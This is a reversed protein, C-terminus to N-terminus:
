DKYCVWIGTYDEDDMHVSTVQVDFYSSLRKYVEDYELNPFNDNSIYIGDIDYDVSTDKGFLEKIINSYEEEQLIICKKLKCDKVNKM